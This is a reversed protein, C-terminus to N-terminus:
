TVASFPVYRFSTTVMTLILWVSELDTPPQKWGRTEESCHAPSEQCLVLQTHTADEERPGASTTGGWFHEM